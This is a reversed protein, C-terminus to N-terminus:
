VQVQFQMGPAVGAPVQVNVMSGNPAQIQITGGPGVGEPCQVMIIQPQPAAVVQGMPVAQAPMPQGYQMPQAGIPQGMPVGVATAAVGAYGGGGHPCIQEHSAAIDYTPFQIGCFQCAYVTTTSGSEPRWGYSSLMCGYACLMGVGAITIFIGSLSVIDPLNFLPGALCILGFATTAGALLFHQKSVPGFTLLM